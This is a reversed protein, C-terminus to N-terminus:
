LFQSSEMKERSTPSPIPLMGIDGFAKTPKKRNKQDPDQQKAWIPRSGWSSGSEAKHTNANYALTGLLRQTKQWAM